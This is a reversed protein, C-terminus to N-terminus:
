RDLRAASASPLKSQQVHEILQKVSVDMLDTVPKPYIGMWLVAAALLLLIGFERANVDALAAVHENAVEGFVVRKYMWLSYAAGLV